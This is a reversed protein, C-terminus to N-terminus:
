ARFIYASADVLLLPDEAEVRWEVQPTISKQEQLIDTATVAATGSAVATASDTKPVLREMTSVNRTYKGKEQSEQRRKWKAIQQALHRFQLMLDALKNGSAAMADLVDKSTSEGAQGYLAESVQKPSNPNFKDNNTEHRLSQKIQALQHEMHDLDTSIGMGFSAKKFFEDDKAYSPQQNNSAIPQEVPSELPAPPSPPPAMDASTEVGSQQQSAVTEITTLLLTSEDQSAAVEDHMSPSGEAAPAAAATAIPSPQTDKAVLMGNDDYDWLDQSQMDMADYEDPQYSYGGFEEDYDFTDLTPPPSQRRTRTTASSTSNNNNTATNTNDEEDSNDHEDNNTAAAAVSVYHRRPLNADKWRSVSLSCKNQSYMQGINKIRRSALPRSNAVVLTTVAARSSCSLLQL